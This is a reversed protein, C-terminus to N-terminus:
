SVLIKVSLIREAPLGSCGGVRRLTYLSLDAGGGYTIYQAAQSRSTIASLITLHTISFSIRYALSGSGFLM